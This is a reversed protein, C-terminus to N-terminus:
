RPKHGLADLRASARHFNPNLRLVNEYAAAAGGWDGKEELVQGLWFYTGATPLLQTAREIDQQAADLNKERYELTARNLYSYDYDPDSHIAATFESFAAAPQNRKVYLTGLNNHAQAAQEGNWSYQIALEYERQAEEFRRANELAIGYNYHATPLEPTLETAAKYHLAALDPRGMEYALAIGLNNEAYGNGTTVAVAHSFVDYSSRWYAIQAHSISAYACLVLTAACALAARPILHRADGEAVLWVVMAFLGIFSVYAWRDAISQPGTQVIGIVPVLTGLFWLWGTLLYRKERWRWVAATVGLLLLAGTAIKWAPLGHQPFPYIIALRSPWVAKLLYAVYSWLANEGRLWLPASGNYASLAGGRHGAYIAMATDGLSIVLLPVKEAGLALWRGLETVSIRARDLPWYDVLLLAFPLTVMMSKSLLSLAFFAAVTLYRGSSPKGAYWGYAILTLFLFTTSLVSKRETAWVVAEVNLPLLAFLAAVAASRLLFGTAKQLLFFLLLVNVIHLLLNVFHFGFPKPGLVQTTAMLSLWTLPHWNGQSTTTFAWVANEWSLGQQVRFNQSIYDPDDYNIFGNRLSRAYVLATVAVLAFALLLSIERRSFPSSRPAEGSPQDPVHKESQPATLQDLMPGLLPEDGMM